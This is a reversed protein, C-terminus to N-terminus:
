TLVQVASVAAFPVLVGHATPTEEPLHELFDAGVRLLRARVRSGDALHLVCGRDDEALGRLAAGWGLRALVSWADQAVASDAAGVIGTVARHPVLWERGADDELLSWDAASRRLVGSLRGVGGVGLRLRTGVAAHLREALTVTRYEARVRDAVEAQRESRALAEAQQELDELLDLVRGLGAAGDGDGGHNTM